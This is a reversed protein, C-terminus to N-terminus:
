ISCLKTVSSGDPPPPREIATPGPLDDLEQKLRQDDLAFGKVIYDRMVSTAWRRFHVAEPTRVRYGVALVMDVNYVQLAGGDTMWWGIASSTVEGDDLINRIIRAVNSGSTGYLAAIDAETQWLMGSVRRLRVRPIRNHDILIVVKGCREPMPREGVQFNKHNITL